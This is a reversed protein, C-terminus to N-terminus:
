FIRTGMVQENGFIEHPSLLIAELAGLQTYATLRIERGFFYLGINRYIIKDHDM